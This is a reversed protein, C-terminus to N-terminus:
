KDLRTFEGEIVNADRPARAGREQRYDEVGGTFHRGAGRFLLGRLVPTLLMIALVETILGPILFLGAALALLVGNFLLRPSIEQAM